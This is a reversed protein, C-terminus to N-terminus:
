RHVEPLEWLSRGRAGTESFWALITRWGADKAALQRTTHLNGTSLIGEVTVHRIDTARTM